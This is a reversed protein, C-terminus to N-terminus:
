RIGAATLYEPVKRGSIGLARTAVHPRVNYRTRRLVEIREGRTLEGRRRAPRHRRYDARDAPTMADYTILWDVMRQVLVEDVDMSMVTSPYVELQDRAYKIVYNYCRQCLGRSWHPRADECRLCEILRGTRTPAPRPTTPYSELGARDFTHLHQYCANCLGRGKHPKHRQCRACDVTPRRNTRTPAPELCTM